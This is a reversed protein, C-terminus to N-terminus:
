PAVEFGCDALAADRAFGFDFPDEAHIRYLPEGRRVHDGVRKLLWLGAGPDTPAGAARAVTAIRLCDVATVVGDRSAVAEHTLAGRTAKIPSPGQADRIDDM